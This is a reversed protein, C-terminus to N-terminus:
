IHSASSSSPAFGSARVSLLAVARWKAASRPAVRTACTRTSPLFVAVCQLVSCCVAVYQLVSCCVAACSLTSCCLAVCQLVSCCVAVCQLVGPPALTFACSSRLLVGNCKAAVCAVCQLVSCCVAVCQLVSCCVAVCQLVSCCVAVCHLVCCCAAVCQLVSRWVLHPSHAHSPHACYWARASPQLV